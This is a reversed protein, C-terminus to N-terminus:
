YRSLWWHLLDGKLPRGSNLTKMMASLMKQDTEWARKRREAAIEEDTAKRFWAVPLKKLSDDLSSACGIEDLDLFPGPGTSEVWYVRGPVPLTEAGPTKVPPGELCFVADGPAFVPDESPSSPNM